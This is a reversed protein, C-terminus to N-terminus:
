DTRGSRFIVVALTLLSLLIVTGLIIALPIQAVVAWVTTGSITLVAFVFALAKLVEAFSDDRRIRRRKEVLLTAAAQIRGDPLTRWPIQEPHTLLRGLGAQARLAAAVEDRTGIIAKTRPVLDTRSM